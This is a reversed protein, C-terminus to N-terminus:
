TGSLIEKPDIEADFFDKISEWISYAWPRLIYCGSVDYYEIMESKTIVKKFSFYLRELKFKVFIITCTGLTHYGLKLGPPKWQQYMSKIHM